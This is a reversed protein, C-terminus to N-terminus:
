MLYGSITYKYLSLNNASRKENLVFYHSSILPIKTRCSSNLIKQVLTNTYLFISIIHNEIPMM